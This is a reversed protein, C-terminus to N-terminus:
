RILRIDLGLDLTAWARDGTLVPLGTAKALALCARDALAIRRGKVLPKLEAAIRAHKADFAVVRIGLLALKDEIYAMDQGAETAKELAEILNVSALLAQDAQVL